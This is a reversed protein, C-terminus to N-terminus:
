AETYTQLIPTTNARLTNTADIAAKRHIENAARIGELMARNAEDEVAKAAARRERVAIVKEVESDSMESYSSIKLLEEVPRDAM